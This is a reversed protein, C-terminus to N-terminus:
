ELDMMNTKKYFDYGGKLIKELLDKTEQVLKKAEDDYNDREFVIKIFNKVDGGGPLAMAINVAQRVIWKHHPALVEDYSSGLIGKIGSNGNDKLIKGFITVLYEMFWLLRLFIRSCSTYKKYPGQGFGLKENNDGNCRNIGMKIEEILIEQVDNCKPYEKFKRRVQNVKSTIDNFGMGLASSIIGFVKTFDYIPSLAFYPNIHDPKEAAIKLKPIITSFSYPVKQDFLSDDDLYARWKSPDTM